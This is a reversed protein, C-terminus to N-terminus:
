VSFLGPLDGLQQIVADPRARQLDEDSGAGARGSLWISRIGTQRAGLIDAMLTDGVMAVQTPTAGWKSLAHFFISRHPKRRGFAASTLVFDLYPRFGADDVQMQPDPDYAANSLVGMHFGRQALAQLTDVSDPDPIWSAQTVRYFAELGAEMVVDPLYTVGLEALTRHLLHLTTSEVLDIERKQYYNQLAAGFAQQFLDPKLNMGLRELESACAILAKRFVWPWDGDFYVLTNGLDFLIHTIGNM